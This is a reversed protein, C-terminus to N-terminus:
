EKKLAKKIASSHLLAVKGFINKFNDIFGTNMLM